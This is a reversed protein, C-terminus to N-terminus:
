LSFKHRRDHLAHSYTRCSPLYTLLYTLLHYCPQLVNVPSPPVAPRGLWGALKLHLLVYKM